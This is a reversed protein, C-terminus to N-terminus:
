SKKLKVNATAEAVEGEEIKGGPIEWQTRKPTNRHILLIRDQDDKIVCGALAIKMLENYLIIYLLRMLNVICAMM